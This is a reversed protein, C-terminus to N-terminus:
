KYNKILLNNPQPTILNFRINFENKIYMSTTLLGEYVDLYEDMDYESYIFIYNKSLNKKHPIRMNISEALNNMKNFGKIAVMYVNNYKTKYYKGAYILVKPVKLKLQKEFTISKDYDKMFRLWNSVKNYLEDDNDDFLLFLKKICSSGVSLFKNTIENYIVTGYVLNKKGCSCTRTDVNSDQFKRFLIEDEKTQSRLFKWHEKNMYIYLEWEKLGNISNDNIANVLNEFKCMSSNNNIIYRINLEKFTKNLEKFIIDNNILIIIDFESLFIYYKVIMLLLLLMRYNEIILIIYWTKM